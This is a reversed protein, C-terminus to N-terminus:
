HDRKKKCRSRKKFSKCKDKKDVTNIGSYLIVGNINIKEFRQSMYIDFYKRDPLRGKEEKSYKKFDEYLDDAMVYQKAM